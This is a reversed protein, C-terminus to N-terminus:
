VEDRLKYLDNINKADKILGELSYIQDKIANIYPLTPLQEAATDALSSPFKVIWKVSQQKM